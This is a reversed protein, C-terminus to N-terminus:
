FLYYNVKVRMQDNTVATAVFSWITNSTKDTQTYFSTSLLPALLLARRLCQKVAANLLLM